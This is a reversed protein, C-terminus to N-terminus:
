ARRRRLRASGTIAFLCACLKSSRHKAGMALLVSAAVLSAHGPLDTPRAPASIHVNFIMVFINLGGGEGEWM